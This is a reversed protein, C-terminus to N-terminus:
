VRELETQLNQNLKRGTGEKRGVQKKWIKRQPTKLYWGAQGVDRRRGGEEEKDRKGFSDEYRNKMYLRVRSEERM